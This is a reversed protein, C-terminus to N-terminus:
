VFNWNRLGDRGDLGLKRLVAAMHNEVTRVSLRLRRAIERNSLGRRAMMAVERERATLRDLRDDHHVRDRPLSAQDFLADPDTGSARLLEAAATVM